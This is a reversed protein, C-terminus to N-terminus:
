DLRSVDHHVGANRCRRAVTRHHLADQPGLQSVALHHGASEAPAAEKTLDEQNIALLQSPTLALFGVIANHLEGTLEPMPRRRARCIKAAASGAPVARRADEAEGDRASSWRRASCKTTSSAPPAGRTSIPASGSARWRRCTTRPPLSWRRGRISTAAAPIRRAREERFLVAPLESHRLAGADRADVAGGHGSGRRGGGGSQARKRAGPHPGFGRQTRARLRGRHRGVGDPIWYLRFFRMVHDIRLAGGHRCNKRISEAFLRYGDERHRASNPPPFAWDQGKPSFDDPPSGVRCGAVYFPRHAWLDSGFRDTALALDHYLGISLHRDRAWQQAGACNCISRGSCTSTFCSAGGTNRRPLRADGGLM